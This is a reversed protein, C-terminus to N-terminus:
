RSASDESGHSQSASTDRTDVDLTDAKEKGAGAGGGGIELDEKLDAITFEENILNGAKDYRRPTQKEKLVVDYPNVKSSIAFICSMEELSRGATEPFIFFTSVLIVFNLVAFLTYTHHGINEQLFPVLMVVAFNFLWNASTSIGNAQARIALPTIEAPYLWSMGLWGFAFFSNFLFFFVTSVVAPGSGLSELAPAGMVSLIIMSVTQGAAGWLMLKRRGMKEIVFVAIWSALFYETGNAAAVIRANVDSFGLRVELTQGIYYTVLNIGSIQQFMQSTFGLATRHFNREAGNTFIDTIKSTKVVELSARMENIKLDVSPDNLLVNDLSAIVARAEEERERLMLWRPSEPLWITIFTPLVLVLQFAIPVRWSAESPSTWFFAFDIWYSLMIGATIMSGEFMLLMGRKHPPSCESQWVPIAATHMGNGIGLVVRFVFLQALSYSATCGIAGVTMIVSGIWINKRRGLANGLYLQSIAGMFCGLEYIGTVLGQLISEISGANTSPNTTDIEPFRNIWSPLTYLSGLVGQDYGFLLFGTSAAFGIAWSLHVGRLGLFTPVNGTEPTGPEYGTLRM